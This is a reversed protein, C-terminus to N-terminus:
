LPNHFKLSPVVIMIGLNWVLSKCRLRNGYILYVANTTVSGWGHSEQQETVHTRILKVLDYFHCIMHPQKSIDTM